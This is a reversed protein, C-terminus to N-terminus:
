PHTKAAKDVDAVAAADVNASGGLGRRATLDGDARVSPKREGRIYFEALGLLFPVKRHDVAGHLNLGAPGRSSPADYVAIDDIIAHGM